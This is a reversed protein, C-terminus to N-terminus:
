SLTAREDRRADRVERRLRRLEEFAAEREAIVADRDGIAMARKWDTQFVTRRVEKKAALLEELPPAPSSGGAVEIPSGIPAQPGALAPTVLALIWLTM